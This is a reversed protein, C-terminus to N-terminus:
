TAPKRSRSDRRDAAQPFVMGGTPHKVHPLPRFGMPFANQQKIQEPTMGGLKDWTAGGHLKVRVGQQVAKRKGSMQVNSPNDSLDYRKELLAKQDSMVKAKDATDQKFSKRSRSRRFSPCTPRSRRRGGAYAPRAVVALSWSSRRARRLRFLRSSCRIAFTDHHQDEQRYYVKHNRIRVFCRPAERAADPWSECEAIGTGCLMTGRRPLGAVGDRVGLIFRKEGRFDLLASQRFSERVTRLSEATPQGAHGAARTAYLTAGGASEDSRLRRIRM